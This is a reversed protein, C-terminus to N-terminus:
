RLDQGNRRLEDRLQGLARSLRSKVTGPACGLVESMEREQPFNSPGPTEELGDKELDEIAALWQNQHMTDRAIMFSLMDRVGKDETMNFLRCVQLRGMSEATVNYRFDALLNGSAIVYRANWPYGPVSRCAASWPARSGPSGFRHRRWRRSSPRRM